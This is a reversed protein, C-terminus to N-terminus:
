RRIKRCLYDYFEDKTDGLIRNTLMYGHRDDSMVVIMNKQRIANAVKNWRILERKEGSEVHIGADDFKLEVREPLGELQKISMGYIALPQIVPFLLCLFILIGRILDSSVPWFRITLLIMAVTFVINIVGPFSKYTRMMAITWLDKPKVDSVYRYEM